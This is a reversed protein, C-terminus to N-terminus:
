KGGWGPVELCTKAPVIACPCLVAGDWRLTASFRDRERYVVVLGLLGAAIALPPVHSWVFVGPATAALEALPGIAAYPTTCHGVPSATPWGRVPM